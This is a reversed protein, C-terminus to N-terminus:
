VFPISVPVITDITNLPLGPCFGDTLFAPYVGCLVLVARARPAAQM